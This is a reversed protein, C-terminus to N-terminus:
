LLWKWAEPTFDSRLILASEKALAKAIKFYDGEILSRKMKSFVVKAAVKLEM